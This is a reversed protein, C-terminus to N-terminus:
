RPLLGAEQLANQAAEAGLREVYPRVQQIVTPDLFQLDSKWPFDQLSAESCPAQGYAALTGSQPQFVAVVINAYPTATNQGVPPMLGSPLLGSLGSLVRTRTYLGYGKTVVEHKAIEFCVEQQWTGTDYSSASIVADLRNEAAAQQLYSKLDGPMWSNVASVIGKSMSQKWDAPANVALPIFTYNGRAKLDNEVTRNIYGPINWDVNYVNTFSDFRLSGVDVHTM